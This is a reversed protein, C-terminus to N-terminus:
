NQVHMEYEVCPNHQDNRRLERVRGAPGTRAAASPGSLTKLYVWYIYYNKNFNFM